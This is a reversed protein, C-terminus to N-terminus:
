DVAAIRRPRHRLTPLCEPFTSEPRVSDGSIRWLGRVFISIELCKRIDPSMPWHGRVTARRRAVSRSRRRISRSTERCQSIDGSMVSYGSVNREMRQCERFTRRCQDIDPSPPPSHASM